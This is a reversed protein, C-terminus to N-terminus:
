KRVPMVVGLAQGAMRTGPGYVGDADVGMAEQWARVRESPNRKTGLLAGQGDRLTQAAYAALDRAAQVPDRQPADQHVEEAAEGPREQATQAAPSPPVEVAAGDPGPAVVTPEEHEAEQVVEEVPVGPQEQAQVAGRSPVVEVAPAVASPGPAIVVDEVHEPLSPPVPGPAPASKKKGSLLALAGGLLALQVLGM